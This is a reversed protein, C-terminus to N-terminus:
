GGREEVLAAERTDAERLPGRHSDVVDGPLRPAERLGGRAAGRGPLSPGLIERGIEGPVESRGAIATGTHHRGDRLFAFAALSWRTHPMAPIAPRAPSSRSRPSITRRM